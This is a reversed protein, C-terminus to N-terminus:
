VLGKFYTQNTQRYGIAPLLKSLTSGVPACIFLGMAGQEQAFTQARRILDLGAGTRRQGPEVYLSETTAIRKGFHPLTAILIVVFGILRDGCYAGLFHTFGAQEMAAYQAYQPDHPTLEAIACEDAYGAMLSACNPANQIDALTIKHVLISDM